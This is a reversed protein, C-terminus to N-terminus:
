PKCWSAARRRTLGAPRAAHARDGQDRAAPRGAGPARRRAQRQSELVTRPGAGYIVGPIGREGYLRVDTYLPTGMAPIPEGFVRRATSRSAGRVLPENGPLPKCRSAGAAPAQDRRTIGPCQAAADAIVSASRRGRGRGPEGRPDHPPRAQAGGQRARRQHQHRRRHPRREPLSAHHGRVKSTVQQYCRTRRTSRTSSAARRAQLADVGTDPHRRAGDQRAGDSGDAPLRQAGHRGRLQLRRRDAPRAQTLGHKLLWGPGSSAASSRTTPSTCNSAARCSPAAAVRARAGRLHLHRLREQQGGRRPRLAQRRRDRRRLPRADLRRRAAGRRRAREARHDARRRLPPARDPQHDIAPRLGAGGADPVPHKEAEFGFGQLLEATREAHPANNGPPTDTPM